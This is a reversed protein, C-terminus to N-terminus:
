EKTGGELHAEFWEKQKKSQLASRKCYDYDDM